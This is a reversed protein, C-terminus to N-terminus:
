NNCANEELGFNEICSVPIKTLWSWIVDKEQSTAQHYRNLLYGMLADNQQCHENTPRHGIMDGQTTYNRVPDGGCWLQYACEWCGPLCEVCSSEVTDRIVDGNFLSNYNDDVTGMLFKLDGKRALMRGEDAVYVRGDYDYIVGGIGAGTPSRLDVFGTSFPTLMRSYLLCAYGEVFFKGEINKQLIYEFGECYSNVFDENGYSLFMKNKEAMGYPNLARFFISKFGLNLYEDIIEPFRGLSKKTTTMLAAVRDPGLVDRIYQIKNVVEGHSGTGDEFPRNDNHIDAPGDLSTSLYIGHKECFDLIESSALVLNSCIVFELNKNHQLNLEKAYEITFKIAQFNLLPEGGQFEIKVYPSPTQFIMDVCKKATELSMDYRSVDSHESSVQCYRCKQNCRLTVVMMHLGTFNRLFNKKTRYQTALMKVPFSYSEEYIFYKALLDCYISSQETLGGETFTCFDKNDLFLYDGGANVILVKDEYRRFWFPLLSYKQNNMADRKNARKM